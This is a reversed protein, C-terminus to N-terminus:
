SLSIKGIKIKKIKKEIYAKNNEMIKEVFTKAQKEKELQIKNENWNDLYNYYEALSCTNKRIGGYCVYHCMWKSM